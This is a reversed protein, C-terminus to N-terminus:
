NGAQLDRLNELTTGAQEVREQATDARLPLLLAASLILGLAFLATWPQRRIAGSAGTRDSGM